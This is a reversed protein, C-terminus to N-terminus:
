PGDFSLAGSVVAIDNCRSQEVSATAFRRWHLFFKRNDNWKLEASKVLTRKGNGCSYEGNSFSYGDFFALMFSAVDKSNHKLYRVGYYILVYFFSELKDEVTPQRFKDDLIASSMFQRTGTRRLQELVLSRVQDGGEDSFPDASSSGKKRFDLWMRQHDWYTRGDTPAGGAKYLGVDTCLREDYSDCETACPHLAYGPCVSSDTIVECFLPQLDVAAVEHDPIKCSMDQYTPHRSLVTDSQVLMSDLFFRHSVKACGSPGKGITYTSHTGDSAASYAPVNKMSLHHRPTPKDNNSSERHRAINNSPARPLYDPSSLPPHTSTPPECESVARQISSLLMARKYKQPANHRM